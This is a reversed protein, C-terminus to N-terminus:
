REYNGRDKNIYKKVLDLVKAKVERFEKKRCLLIIMVINSLIFIIISRVIFGLIGEFPIYQNVKFCVAFTIIACLAYIIMDIYYRKPSKKLKEKYLIFPNYWITTVCMALITALFVGLVGFLKGLIISLVINIASLVLPAMRGEKFVGLTNRYTIMPFEIGKLYICGVIVVVTFIPFLYEDGIWITIFPNLLIALCVCVVGYLYSSVFNVLSLIEEKRDNTVKANLNGISGKMGTLLTWIVGNVALIVTNYNSYMGVATLNVLVTLLINDTGNQVVTGLKYILLSKVNSFIGKLESKDIKKVDKDKLFPYKRNAIISILLNALITTVIFTLLYLIYNQTVVLIVIQIIAKIINFIFDVIKNIYDKQYVLFVDRKYGYFYTGVVQSLFLLYILTLNESIDPTDRIIYGLFPIVSLGLMLVIIGIVRYIVKYLKVLSKIREKDDDAVPKYLNYTIATGFGLEALNLINLINSYLGNLGMYDISLYYIFITRIGFNILNNIIEVFMGISSNIFSNEVRSSEKIEM